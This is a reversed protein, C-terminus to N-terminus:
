AAPVDHMGFETTLMGDSREDDIEEALFCAEDDFCIAGRVEGLGQAVAAAISPKGGRTKDDKTQGVVDDQVMGVADEVLDTAEQSSM